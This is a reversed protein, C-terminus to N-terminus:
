NSLNVSQGKLKYVFIYNDDFNFKAVEILENESNEKLYEVLLAAQLTKGSGDPGEFTIFM